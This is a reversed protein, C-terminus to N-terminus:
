DINEERINIGSARIMVSNSQIFSFINKSYDDIFGKADLNTSIFTPLLNADRIRLINELLYVSSRNATKLGTESGINDLVLLDTYKIVNTFETFKSSDYSLRVLEDYLFFKANFHYKARFQKMMISKVIVTLLTTKGRGSGGIIFLGKGQTYYTPFKKYYALCEQKFQTDPITDFDYMLFKKGFGELELNACAIAKKHCNCEISYGDELYFGTGHCKECEKIYLDKWFQQKIKIEDPSLEKSFDKM